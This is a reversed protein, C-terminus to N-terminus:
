QPCLRAITLFNYAHVHWLVVAKAKDIGRVLLRNLGRNRMDAHPRETAFRKQYFAQGPESMMRQYWARVGPGDKPKPPKVEADKGRPLPCFVEIAGNEPKHLAEIDAKGNFGGDSLVQKPRRGYRRHLEDMAPGLQGRDSANNSVAVGVVLGSRLATKVQINYGPRYGGDAMRMTRAQPDTTSARPERTKAPKKRRQEKAEAARRAAIEAQAQQALEIRRRRDEGAQLRRAQGRRESAAPDEELEARLQAVKQCALDHLQALRDSGHFSNKGAAARVRLGDVAVCDLDVVEAAVLSAVSGSLLDDLVPGAESRFDSLTKHSVEIGGLLWRYALDRRCLRELQRASGVGELTAYLWLAMLVAPDIAPRGARGALSRIPAYLGSLDMQEVYIWVQRARHDEVLLEDLSTVEFGVQRREARALRLGARKGASM